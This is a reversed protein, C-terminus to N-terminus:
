HHEGYVKEGADVRLAIRNEPPPLPCTAYDTFVCPPNYAKNFDIIATEGDDGVTATLFRGGHYTESGNTEDGFILFLDQEGPEGLAILRYTEDNMEFELTGATTSRTTTGLITPIDMQNGSDSPVFQARVRWALDIPFYEIRSFGKLAASDRDKLRIAQRGDREIVYFSLSGMQLVTPEGTEDTKLHMSKVPEGNHVITAGEAAEFATSKGDIYFSGAFKPSKDRPFVIDMRADSGFTNQGDGLWHLGVVTLWGDDRLLNKLRQKRWEEVAATEKRLTIKGPDSVCAALALLMIPLFFYRGRVTKNRNASM